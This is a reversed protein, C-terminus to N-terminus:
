VARWQMVLALTRAAAEDLQNSRAGPIQGADWVWRNVSLEGPYSWPSLSGSGAAHTLFNARGTVASGAVCLVYVLHSLLTSVSSM